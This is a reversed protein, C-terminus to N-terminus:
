QRRRRMRGVFTIVMGALGAWMSALVIPQGPEYVVRMGVWYRIERAELFYDGANFKDGVAAKGEALPKVARQLGSKAALEVDEKKDPSPLSSDVNHENEMDLPHLQFLVEGGREKLKSPRYAVQLAFLPNLPVQPFPLADPGEKTGTTYLYSEDKQKLSQLAIHAGYIERGLRDSLIVLISYGEKDNFYSFGNRDLSKTIYIIGQKQSGAEGVAIEYAARKDDSGVKYGTHMKILTTEGKLKAFLFFHGHDYSDYSQPDGSSLTEGEALRINGRYYFLSNYIIGTLMFVFSLHFLVMGISVLTLKRGWMRPFFCCAVNVVLLVLLGNFWLTAFILRGAEVGRWITVGALCCALIIVLLAMALKVSSLFKYIKRLIM